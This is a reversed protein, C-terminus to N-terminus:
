IFSKKNAEKPRDDSVLGITLFIKKYGQSGFRLETHNTKFNSVGGGWILPFESIM